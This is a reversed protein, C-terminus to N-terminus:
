CYYQRQRGKKNNYNKKKEALGGGITVHYRSSLELSLRMNSSRSLICVRMGKLLTLVVIPVPLEVKTRFSSLTDPNPLFSTPFTSTQWAFLLGFVCARVAENVM